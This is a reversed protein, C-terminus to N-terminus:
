PNRGAAAHRLHTPLLVKNTKNRNSFQKQARFRTRFCEIYSLAEEWWELLLFISLFAKCKGANEKLWRERLLQVTLMNKRQKKLHYILHVFSRKHLYNQTRQMKLIFVLFFKNSNRSSSFLKSKVPTEKM